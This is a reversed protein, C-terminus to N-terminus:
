IVFVRILEKTIEPTEISLISDIQFSKVITCSRSIKGTIGRTAKMQM